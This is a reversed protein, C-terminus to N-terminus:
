LNTQPREEYKVERWGRLFAKFSELEASPWVVTPWITFRRELSTLLHVTTLAKIMSKTPKIKRDKEVVVEPTSWQLKGNNGDKQIM